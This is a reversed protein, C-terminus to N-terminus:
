YMLYSGQAFCRANSPTKDLREKLTERPTRDAAGIQILKGKTHVFLIRLPAWLIQSQSGTLTYVHDRATSYSVFKIVKQHRM